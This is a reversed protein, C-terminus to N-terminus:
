DQSRAQADQAIGALMRRRIWGSVPRILAWYPAFRLLSARDPCYVRTETSLLLQGDPQPAIAFNIVLRAAGSDQCALFAPGDACPILDYGARWFRGILGYALERDGDRDLLTFDDLGFPPRTPRGRAPQNFARVPLERLAIACRFFPDQEPRYAQVAAMARAPTAALPRSHHEHFQYRPLYRDILTM